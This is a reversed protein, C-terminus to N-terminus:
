SFSVSQLNCFNLHAKLRLSPLTPYPVWLDAAGNRTQIKMGENLSSVVHISELVAGGGTMSTIASPLPSLSSAIDRTAPLIPNTVHLLSDIQRYRIYKHIEYIEHM